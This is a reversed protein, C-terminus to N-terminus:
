SPTPPPTPTLPCVRYYFNTFTDPTQYFGFLPRRQPFNALLILWHEAPAKRPHKPALRGTRPFTRDGEVRPLAPRAGTVLPEPLRAGLARGPELSCCAPSLPSPVRPCGASGQLDLRPPSRPPGWAAEVELGARRWV